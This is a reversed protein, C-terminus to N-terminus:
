GENLLKEIPDDNLESLFQRDEKDLRLERLHDLREIEERTRPAKQGYGYNRNNFLVNNNM